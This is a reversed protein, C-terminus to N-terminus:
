DTLSYPSQQVPGGKGHTLRIKLSPKKGAARRTLMAVAGTAIQGLPPFQPTYPSRQGDLLPDHAGQEHALDLDAPTASIETKGPQKGFRQHERKRYQPEPRYDARRELVTQRYHGKDPATIQRDQHKAM